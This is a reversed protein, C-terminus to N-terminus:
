PACSRLFAQVRSSVVDASTTAQIQVTSQQEWQQHMVAIAFKMGIGQDLSKQHLLSTM